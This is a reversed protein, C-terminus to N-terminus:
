YDEELISDLDNGFEAEYSFPSVAILYGKEIYETVIGKKDLLIINGNKLAFVDRGNEIADNAFNEDVLVVGLNAFGEKILSDKMKETTFRFAYKETYESALNLIQEMKQSSVNDQVANILSQFVTDKEILQSGLIDIYKSMEEINGCSMKANYVLEETKFTDMREEMAKM